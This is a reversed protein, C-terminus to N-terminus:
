HVWGKDARADLLPRRGAFGDAIRHWHAVTPEGLKWCLFVLESGLLCPFDIMGAEPGNVLCGYAHIEAILSRAEQVLGSVAGEDLAAHRARDRRTGARSNAGATEIQARARVIAEQVRVVKPHIVLILHNAEDVTFLRSATETTM